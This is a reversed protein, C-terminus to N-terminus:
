LIAYCKKRLAALALTCQFALLLAVMEVKLIGIGMELFDKLHTIFRATVARTAPTLRGMRLPINSIHIRSGPIIRDVLNKRIHCLGNPM